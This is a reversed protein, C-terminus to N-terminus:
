AAAQGDGLEARLRATAEELAAIVEVPEVFKRFEITVKASTTRIARVTPRKSRAKIAAGGKSGGARPKSAVRRIAEVTEARSLGEAVVRSAIEAQVDPADIKSLEYAVSPALGGSEVHDQVTDPLTLLAVARFVSADSMHLTRALQDGSWGNRDM